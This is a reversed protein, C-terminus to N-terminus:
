DSKRRFGIAYMAAIAVAIGSAIGISLTQLSNFTNQVVIYSPGPINVFPMQDGPLVPTSFVYYVHLNTGQTGGTWLMITHPKVPNYYSNNFLLNGAYYFSSDSGVGTLSWQGSKEAFSTYFSRPNGEAPYIHRNDTGFNISPEAWFINTNEGELGIASYSWNYSKGSTQSSYVQVTGNFAPTLNYKADGRQSAYLTLGNDVTGGTINWGAPKSKGAFNWYSNFVNVGNDYEGYPSTLEPAVGENGSKNFLNTTKNVFGLHITLIQHSAISVPIRLWYNTGSLSYSDNNEIWSPIIKGQNTFWIVNQLDSSEYNSFHYSNVSVKQIFPSSTSNMEGNVLSVNVFKIIGQPVTVNAAQAFSSTSSNTSIPVAYGPIAIISAFMFLSAFFSLYKKITYKWRGNQRM